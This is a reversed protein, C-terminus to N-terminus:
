EEKAEYFAGLKNVMLLKTVRYSRDDRDEVVWMHEAVVARELSKGFAHLALGHRQSGAVQQPVRAEREPESCCVEVCRSSRQVRLPM